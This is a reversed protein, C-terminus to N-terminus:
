DTQDSILNVGDTVFTQPEGNKGEYILYANLSKDKALIAKAKEVGLVMFATAYADALTCNKAFVSASLLSHQVPYGTAPSITHGMKKGSIIKYNRYNGSTALAKNELKVASFIKREETASSPDEIGVMWPKNEATNEGKAYVEGGIEVFINQIGKEELLDVVLDVAHGKAVASFDLAVGEELKCISVSDFFINKFGVSKLLEEVQASDPANAEDPGFGWANVLPMITPDFAGNTKDFVEKSAKLVSYFYPTEFKLLTNANFRSIESNPIYTSLSKNFAVLLSDIQAQYNINNSDIYKVSYGITGMTIGTIHINAAQESQRCKWVVFMLLMLVVPYIRSKHFLGKMTENKVM